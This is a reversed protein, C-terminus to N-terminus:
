RTLSAISRKPKVVSWTLSRSSTTVLTCMKASLYAVKPRGHPRLSFPLSCFGEWCGIVRTEHLERRIRSALLGTGSGVHLVRLSDSQRLAALVANRVPRYNLWLFWRLNYFRSWADFLRPRPRPRESM